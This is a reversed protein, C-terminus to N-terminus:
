RTLQQGVCSVFRYERGLDVEPVGQYTNYQNGAVDHYPANLIVNANDGSVQMAVRGHLTPSPLALLHRLPASPPPPSTVTLSISDQYRDPLEAGIAVAELASLAM